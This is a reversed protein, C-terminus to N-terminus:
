SFVKTPQWIQQQANWEAIALFQGQHDYVRALSEEQVIGPKKDLQFANGHRVRETTAEDLFLTPYQEIAKDIPHLHRAVM